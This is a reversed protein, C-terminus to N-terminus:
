HTSPFCISPFYLVILLAASFLFFFIAAAIDKKTLLHFGTDGDPELWDQINEHTTETEGAIRM